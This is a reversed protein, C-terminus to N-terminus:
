LSGGQPTLGKQSRLGGTFGKLLGAMELAALQATALMLPSAAWDLLPLSDAQAVAAIFYCSSM